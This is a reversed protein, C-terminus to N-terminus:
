QAHPHRNFTEYAIMAFGLVYAGLILYMLLGTSVLHPQWLDLFPLVFLLNGLFAASLIGWVGRLRPRMLALLALLPFIPYLYREHMETPFLFFAMGSLVAAGLVVADDKARRRMAWVTGTIAGALLVLGWTRLSAGFYITRDDVTTRVSAQWPAWINIAGKALYPYATTLHGIGDRIVGIPTHQFISFVAIAVFVFSVMASRMLNKSPFRALLATALVPVFVVSQPKTFIAAGIALIAGLPRGWTLALFALMILFSHISDTQGWYATTYIAAPNLLAIALAATARRAGYQRAWRFAAFGIAFDFILAPIKVVITGLFSYMPLSPIALWSSGYPLIVDTGPFGVLWLKGIVWLVPLYLAYSPFISVPSDPLTQLDVFGNAGLHSAWFKFLNVDSEYGQLPILAGRVILAIAVILTIRQRTMM